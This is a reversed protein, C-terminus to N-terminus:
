AWVGRGSAVYAQPKLEGDVTRIGFRDQNNQPDPGDNLQYVTLVEIGADANLAMEERLYLAVQENSLSFTKKFIWCGKKRPATHWGVETNWLRRGNAAAKLAAFEAGRSSFGEQPSSPSPHDDRRYSHFGVIAQEGVGSLAAKLWRIAGKSTTSIGATVLQVTPTILRCAIETEAFWRAYDYPDVKLNEENGVQIAYEYPAWARASEHILAEVTEETNLDLSLPVVWLPRLGSGTVDLVLSPVDLSSHVGLRVGDYGLTRILSFADAGIPDGFGAQLYVRM